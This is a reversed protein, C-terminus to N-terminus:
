TTAGRAAQAKAPPCRFGLSVHGDAGLQQDGEPHHQGQQAPDAEGAPTGGVAHGVLRLQQVLVVHLGRHQAAGLRGQPLEAVPEGLEEDGGFLALLDEVALGLVVRDDVAAQAAVGGPPAGRLLALCQGCPLLREGLVPLRPGPPERQYARALELLRGVPVGLRGGGVARGRHRRQPPQDLELLPAAVLPPLLDGREAAAGGAQDDPQQHHAQQEADGQGQPHALVALAVSSIPAL